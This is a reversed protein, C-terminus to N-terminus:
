SDVEGLYSVQPSISYVKTNDTLAIRSLVSMYPLKQIGWIHAVDLLPSITKWTLTGIMETADM